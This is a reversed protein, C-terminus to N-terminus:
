DYKMRVAQLIEGTDMHEAFAVVHLDQAKWEPKLEVTLQTRYQTGPSEDTQRLYPGYLERVVYDHHLLRGENEGDEVQNSLNSELIAFYLGVPADATGKASAENVSAALDLLLRSGTKRVSLLLDIVPVQKVLETVDKDFTAYRRYDSGSMTFQPTYVSSLSQRRAQSRQRQDFQPKAYPDKWGIYDWYTVHYTLPILQGPSIGAQKLSSVFADAPPCSSCGESTYLELVAVRNDPSNVTRTEADSSGSDHAAIVTGHKIAQAVTDAFANTATLAVSLVIISLGNTFDGAKM